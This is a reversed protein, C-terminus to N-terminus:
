VPFALGGHEIPSYCFLAFVIAFSTGNVDLAFGCFTLDRIIPLSLLDKLGLNPKFSSDSENRTNADIAQNHLAETELRPSPGDELRKSRKAPLTQKPIDYDIFKRALSNLLTSFLYRGRGGGRIAYDNSAIAFSRLRSM